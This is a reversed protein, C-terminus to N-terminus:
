NKAGKIPKKVHKAPKEPKLLLDGPAPKWIFQDVRQIINPDTGADRAFGQSPLVVSAALLSVVAAFLKLSNPSM